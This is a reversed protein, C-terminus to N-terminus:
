CDLAKCFARFSIRRVSRVPTTRVTGYVDKAYMAHGVKPRQAHSITMFGIRGGYLDIESVDNGCGEARRSRDTHRAYYTTNATRIEYYYTRVLDLTAM